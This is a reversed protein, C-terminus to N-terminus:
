FNLLLLMSHAKLKYVRLKIRRADRQYNKKCLDVAGLLIAQVPQRLGAVM